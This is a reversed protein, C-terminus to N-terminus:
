RRECSLLHRGDGSRKYDQGGTARWSYIHAEELRTPTKMEALSRPLKSALSGSRLVTYGLSASARQLAATDIPNRLVVWLEKRSSFTVIEVDKIGRLERLEPVLSEPDTIM